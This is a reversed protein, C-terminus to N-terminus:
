FFFVDNMVSYISYKAGFITESAGLEWGRLKGKVMIVILNRGATKQAEEIKHM